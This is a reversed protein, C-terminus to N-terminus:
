PQFLGQLNRLTRATRIGSRVASEITAPYGPELDDSCRFIHPLGTEGRAEQASAMPTEPTCAWTASKETIWKQALPAIDIGLQAKLQVTLQAEHQERSVRYNSSPQASIVIALVKGRKVAVQGIPAIGTIPNLVFWNPLHALSRQAQDSLAIWVTTIANSRLQRLRTIATTHALGSAEWLTLSPEHPLAMVIKNFPEIFDQGGASLRLDVTNNMPNPALAVARHGAHLSVKHTKLWACIPDVGERSLNNPPQLVATAKHPGALSDNMVRAVTQMCAQEIPTNLAGEILPKWFHDMLGQPTDQQSLWQLATIREPMFQTKQLALLCCGMSRRWAFPWGKPGMGPLLDKIVRLPWAANPVQWDHAVVANRDVGAWRLPEEHWQPANVRHLLTFTETYAGITLHQGNDIDHGLWHLGRARGGFQPAAEFVYITEPLTGPVKVLEAACALGAWGGGVIAIRQGVIM